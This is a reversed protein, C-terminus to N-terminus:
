DSLQLSLAPLEHMEALVALLMELLVLLGGRAEHGLLTAARGQVLKTPSALRTPVSWAQTTALFLLLARM